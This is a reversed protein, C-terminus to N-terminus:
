QPCSALIQFDWFLGKGPVGAYNWKWQGCIGTKTDKLIFGQANGMIWDFPDAVNVDIKDQVAVQGNDLFFMTIQPKGSPTKYVLTVLSRKDDPSALGTMTQDTALAKAKGAAVFDKFCNETFSLCGAPLQSPESSLVKVEKATVTPPWWPKAEISFMTTWNLNAKQGGNTGNVTVVGSAKCSSAYPITTPDQPTVTFEASSTPTGVPDSQKTVITIGDCVFSATSSAWEGGTVTTKVKVIAEARKVALSGDAPTVTVTGGGNVPLTCTPYNTAGNACTNNNGGGGSSSGGGGGGCATILVVSLALLAAGFTRRPNRIMFEKMATGKRRLSAILQTFFSSCLLLIKAKHKRHSHKM